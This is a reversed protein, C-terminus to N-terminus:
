CAGQREGRGCRRLELPLAELHAGEDVEVHHGVAAAGGVGGGEMGGVEVRVLPCLREGRHSDPQCNLLM